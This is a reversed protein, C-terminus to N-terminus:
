RLRILRLMSRDGPESLSLSVGRNEDALAYLVAYSTPTATM